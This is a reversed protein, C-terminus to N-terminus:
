EDRFLAGAKQRVEDSPTLLETGRGEGGRVAWVGELGKSTFRYYAVGSVEEGAVGAVYGGAPGPMAAGSYSDDSGVRFRLFYNQGTKEVTLNGYETWYDKDGYKAWEFKKNLQHLRYPHRGIWTEGTLGGVGFTEDYHFWLGAFESETDLDSYWPRNKIYSQTSQGEKRQIEAEVGRQGASMTWPFWFELFFKKTDSYAVYLIGDLLVGLGLVEANGGGFKWKIRYIEATREPQALALVVEGTRKLEVKAEYSTAEEGPNSGTAMYAGSLDPPRSSDQALSHSPVALLCALLLPLSARPLM